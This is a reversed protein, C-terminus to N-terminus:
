GEPPREAPPTKQQLWLNYMKGVDDAMVGTEELMLLDSHRTNWANMEHLTMYSPVFGLAWEWFENPIVHRPPLPSDTFTM